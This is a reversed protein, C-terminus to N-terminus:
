VLKISKDCLGKIMESKRMVEETLDNVFEALHEYVFLRIDRSCKTIACVVNTHELCTHPENIVEPDVDVKNECVLVLQWRPMDSLVRHGKRDLMVQDKDAYKCWGIRHIVNGWRDDEHPLRKGFFAFGPSAKFIEKETRIILENLNDTLDNLKASEEALRQLDRNSVM